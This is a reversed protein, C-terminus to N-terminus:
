PEIGLLVLPVAPVGRGHRIINYLESEYRAVGSSMERMLRNTPVIEVGVDIKDGIYFALHKVFLDYTVSFYKGLQVEVAVRNKTFDTQNYSRLPEAGAAEIEAKQAAPEKHITRRILGEDAAVWYDVRSETWGLPVLADKFAANLGKPSYLLDGVMGREKSEKTRCAEADIGEIVSVLEDWLARQHVQLFEWGNLHSYRFAIKM